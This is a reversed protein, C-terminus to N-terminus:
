AATAPHSEVPFVWITASRCGARSQLFIAAICIISLDICKSRAEDPAHSRNDRSLSERKLWVHYILREERGTGLRRSHISSELVIKQATIYSCFHYNGFLVVTKQYFRNTRHAISKLHEFFTLRPRLKSLFWNKKRFSANYRASQTFFRNTSHPPQAYDFGPKKTTLQWANLNSIWPPRSAWGM